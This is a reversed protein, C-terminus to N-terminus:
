KHVSNTTQLADHMRKVDDDVEGGRRMSELVHTRLSSVDNRKEALMAFIKHPRFNGDDIAQMEEADKEVADLNGRQLNILARIHLIGVMDLDAYRQDDPTFSNFHHMAVDVQKLVEEEQHTAWLCIILWRRNELHQPLRQLADGLIRQATIYDKEGIAHMAKRTENDMAEGGGYGNQFRGQYIYSKEPAIENRRYVVYVCLLSAMGTALLVVITTVYFIGVNGRDNM